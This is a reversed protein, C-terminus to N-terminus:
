LLAEEPLESKLFKKELEDVRATLEDRSADDLSFVIGMGPVDEDEVVVTHTVVGVLSTPKEQGPFSVLLHLESEEPLPDETVVFIGEENIDRTYSKCPGNVGGYTVELRLPLRRRERLNLLGGRVFGNLYNVKEREEPGLAVTTGAPAPGEAVDRHAIVQGRLIVRPGENGVSLDIRVTDGVGATADGDLHVTFDRPDFVKVWQGKDELVLEVRIM